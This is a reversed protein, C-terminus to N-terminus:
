EADDTVESATLDGDDDVTVAFIKESGETTSKLLISDFVTEPKTYGEDDILRAIEKAVTPIDGTYLKGTTNLVEMREAIKQELTKNAM